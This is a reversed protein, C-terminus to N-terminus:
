DFQCVMENRGFFSERSNAHQGGQYLSYITRITLKPLGWLRLEKLRPLLASGENESYDNVEFTVDM